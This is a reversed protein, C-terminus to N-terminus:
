DPHGRARSRAPSAIGHVQLRRRCTSVLWATCQFPHRRLQMSVHQLCSSEARSQWRRQLPPPDCQWFRLVLSILHRHCSYRRRGLRRPPAPRLVILASWRLRGAPLPRRPSPCMETRLLWPRLASRIRHSQQQPSPAPGTDSGQGLCGIGCDCLSARQHRWTLRTAARAM